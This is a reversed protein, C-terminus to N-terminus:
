DADADGHVVHQVQGVRRAATVAGASASQFTPVRTDAARQDVDHAERAKHEARKARRVLEAQEHGSRDRQRHHGILEPVDNIAAGEASVATRRARGRAATTSYPPSNRRLRLGALDRWSLSRGGKGATNGGWM